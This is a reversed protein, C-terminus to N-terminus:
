AGPAPGSINPPWSDFPVFVFLLFYFVIPFLFVLSFQAGNIILPVKILLPEWGHELAKQSEPSIIDNYCIRRRDPDAIICENNLKITAGSINGYNRM